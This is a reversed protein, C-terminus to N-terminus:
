GVTAMDCCIFGTCHNCSLPIEKQVNKSM